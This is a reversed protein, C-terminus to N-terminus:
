MVTNPKAGQAQEEFYSRLMAIGETPHVPKSFCPLHPFDEPAVGADQLGDFRGTCLLMGIPLNHERLYRYIEVGSDMRELVMDTWIFDPRDHLIIQMAEAKSYASLAEYGGNYQFIIKLTNAIVPQYDVVLVRMKRTGQKLADRREALVAEMAEDSLRESDEKGLLAAYKAANSNTDPTRARTAAAM